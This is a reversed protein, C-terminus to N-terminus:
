LICGEVAGRQEQPAKTLGQWQVTSPALNCTQCTATFLHRALDVLRSTAPVPEVQVSEERAARSAEFQGTGM